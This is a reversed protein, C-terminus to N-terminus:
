SIVVLYGLLILSATFISILFLPHSLVDGIATRIRTRIMIKPFQRATTEGLSRMTKPRAHPPAHRYPEKAPRNIDEWDIRPKNQSAETFAQNRELKNM